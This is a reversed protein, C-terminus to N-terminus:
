ELIEVFQGREVSTIVGTLNHTGEKEALKDTDNLAESTRDDEGQQDAGETIRQVAYLTRSLHVDGVPDIHEAQLRAARGQPPLDDKQHRAIGTDSSAGVNEGSVYMKGIERVVEEGGATHGGADVGIQGRETFEDVFEATHESDGNCDEAKEKDPPSDQAPCVQHDEADEDDKDESGDDRWGLIEVM